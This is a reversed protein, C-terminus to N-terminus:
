KHYSVLLYDVTSPLDLTIVHYMGGWQLVQWEVCAKIALAKAFFFIRPEGPKLDDVLEQCVHSFDGIDNRCM